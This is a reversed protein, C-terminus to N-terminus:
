GNPLSIKFVTHGPKSILTITGSHKEIIKKTYFLGIGFGKVDHINGKPIRYFKDFIKEQEKKDIGGGNDAITIEITKLLSMVAIEINNGGYKIANDILNSVANEFHFEDIELLLSEMNSSFRIQKDSSIINYKNILKEILYVIDIKEKSLLLSESDLTATELLKEVMNHLKKLQASSINLYKKTKEKDNSANFNEMAEVATSITTIPTKFEHTINSILDNKIEALQKQQNIVKILYFLSSIVGLALLFSLFIGMSSRKLAEMTPKTYYMELRQGEKFFTSKSAAKSDKHDSQLINYNHYLTDGKFHKFGYDVYINKQVLKKALISDLTKYELSDNLVAIYITKLGTILKISDAAKKGKFIQVSNITNNTADVHVGEKGFINTFGKIKKNWLTDQPKAKKFLEKETNTILSDILHSKIDHYEKYNDTTLALSEISINISDNKTTSSGMFTSLIKSDNSDNPEVITLFNKKSINAYYEEVANDLGLQIENYIQQKNQEYNKYNWYLQVAVTILITVTILYLIWNYKKTNM